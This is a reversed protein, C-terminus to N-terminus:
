NRSAPVLSSTRKCIFILANTRYELETYKINEWWNLHELASPALLLINGYKWFMLEKEAGRDGSGSINSFETLLVRAPFRITYTQLLPCPGVGSFSQILINYQFTTCSHQLILTPQNTEDSSGGTLTSSELWYLEPLSDGWVEHGWVM